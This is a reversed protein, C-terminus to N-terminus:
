HCLLVLSLDRNSMTLKFSSGALPYSLGQSVHRHTFLSQVPYVQLLSYLFFHPCKLPSVVHAHPSSSSFVACINRHERKICGQVNSSRRLCLTCFLPLPFNSLVTIIIVRDKDNFQITDVCCSLTTDDAYRIFQFLKSTNPYENIYIIFLLSGM